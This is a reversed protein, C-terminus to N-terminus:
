QKTRVPKIPQVHYKHAWSATRMFVQADIRQAKPKSKLADLTDRPQTLGRMRGPMLARKLWYTNKLHGCGDEWAGVYRYFNQQEYFAQAKACLRHYPSSTDFARRAIESAAEDDTRTYVNTSKIHAGHLLREPDPIVSTVVAINLRAILYGQDERTWILAGKPAHNYSRAM